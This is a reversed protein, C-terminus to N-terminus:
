SKEDNIYESYPIRRDIITGDELIEIIRNAVTENLEYDHTTFLIEGEFKKM